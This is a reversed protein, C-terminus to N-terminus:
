VNRVQVVRPDRQVQFDRGGVMAANIYHVDGVEVAGASAHVHGFFHYNPCVREIQERLIPCGLNVLGSSPKPEDSYGYQSFASVLIFFYVIIPRM